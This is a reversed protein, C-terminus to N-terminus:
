LPTLRVAETKEFFGLFRERGVEALLRQLHKDVAEQDQWQEYLVFERPAGDKAHITYAICGEDQQHTSRMMERAVDIFEAEMGERITMSFLITLM